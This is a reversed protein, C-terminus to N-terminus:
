ILSLRSDYRMHVTPFRVQLITGLRGVRKNSRSRQEKNCRRGIRCNTAGGSTTITKNVFPSHIPLYLLRHRFQQLLVESQAALFRCRIRPASPSRVVRASARLFRAASLIQNRLIRGTTMALGGRHQRRGTMVLIQTVSM